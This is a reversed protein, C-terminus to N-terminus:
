EAEDDNADKKPKKEKVTKITIASTQNLDVRIDGYAYHELGEDKMILDCSEKAKVEADLAEIREAQLELYRIAAKHVRENKEPATGPLFEQILKKKRAPPEEGGKLIKSKAV